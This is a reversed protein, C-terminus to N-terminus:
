DKTGRVEMDLAGPQPKGEWESLGWYGEGKPQFFGRHNSMHASITRVPDKGNITVGKAVLADRIEKYHMASGRAAMAEMIEKAMGSPAGPGNRKKAPKRRATRGASPAIRALMTIGGSQKQELYSITSAMGEAQTQLRAIESQLVTLESKLLDVVDAM